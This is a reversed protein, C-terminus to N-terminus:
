ENSSRSLLRWVEESELEPTWEEAGEISLFAQRIAEVHEKKGVVWALDGDLDAPQVVLDADFSPRCFPNLLRPLLTLDFRRGHVAVFSAEHGIM